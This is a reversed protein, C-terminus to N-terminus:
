RPKAGHVREAVAIVKSHVKDVQKDTLTRGPDRYLIRLGLAMRGEPLSGGRFLDFVRVSEALGGAAERITEVLAAATVDEAVEFSVDRSAGPFRPPAEAQPAGWSEIAQRLAEVELEGYLTRCGLGLDETVEPHLEGMLGVSRDGVWLRARRRPHLYREADLSDDLECRLPAGIAEAVYEVAGKLDYFDVPRAPGLWAHRRGALLLGLMTREDPLAAAPAFVRGLEFLGVEEVQRHLSRVAGGALGPLLSTRLVSRDESLPNRLPVADTPVRAKALDEPAVFAYGIAEHLGAGAVVERLRREFLIRRPTGARSPSVRPVVYGIKEYGHVRAIEEVLDAEGSAPYAALDPRWSPTRVSFSEDDAADVECGLAELIRCAEDWPVEVGLIGHLTQRRLIVRRKEVPVAVVDIADRLAIAGPAAVSAILSAARALVRPVDAPDVGREFRHSADTHIGLRRSTRRVSRPDFYACEIVVHQTESGIESNAGGMVGALAIPREGDCILLDDSTLRREVEDLTTLTEGDQATRVVIRREVIKDWDFAHIPHGTELMVINTADVVNNIARLGLVHLRYRIAFSSPRVKVGVVFAAGYRPCRSADELRVEFPGVPPTELAVERGGEWELLLREGSARVVSQVGEAWFAPARVPPAAFPVAYAAALDRAIGIHGLCDPRNPTVGLEFVVDGVPLAEVLPTGPIADPSLVIIGDGEAGVDLEPESCIMGRSEVGAITKPALEVLGKDKGIPLRAGVRAFLVKGGVDPVNRAGCLVTVTEAGDFLEVITYKDKTPHQTRKRIEGVVVGAPPDFRHIAEVELGLCTLKEAVEEPTADVGSLEQLWRHSALM